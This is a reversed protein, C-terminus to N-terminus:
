KIYNFPNASLLKKENYLTEMLCHKRKGNKKQNRFVLLLIYFESTKKTKSQANKLYSIYSMVWYSIIVAMKKNFYIRVTTATLCSEVLHQWLQSPNAIENAIIIHNEKSRKEHM